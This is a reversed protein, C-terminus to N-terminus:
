LMNKESPNTFFGGVLYVRGWVTSPESIGLGVVTQITSFGQLDHYIEVVLRGWSTLQVRIEAMLLLVQLIM